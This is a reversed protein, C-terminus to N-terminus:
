MRQSAELKEKKIKRNKLRRRNLLDLENQLVRKQALQIKQVLAMQEKACETEAEIAYQNIKECVTKIKIKDISQKNRLENYINLYVYLGSIINDLSVWIISPNYENYFYIQIIPYTENETYLEVVKSNTALKIRKLESGLKECQIREDQLVSLSEEQPKAFKKYVEDEKAIFEQKKKEQLALWSIFLSFIGGIVVGILGCIPAIWDNM